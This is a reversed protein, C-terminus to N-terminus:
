HGAYFGDFEVLGIKQGAGTMTVGPAYAARFDNGIFLGAPGSGSVLPRASTLSAPKLDMPQPLLFNDLGSITLVEVDIDLSPDRDPAFFQGRTPHEWVTLNMHLAKNVAGVPGTVDLIMRNPHKGSVSFGSAQLFAILKDYDEETPGFREAFESASLHQRYHASRPDAIQEVLVDLEGRNRLPLGIALNLNATEAVAGVQRSQNVARPIHNRLIQSPTAEVSGAALMMVGVYLVAYANRLSSM